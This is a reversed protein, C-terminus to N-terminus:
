TRKQKACFTDLIHSRKQYQPPKREYSLNYCLNKARPGSERKGRGVDETAKNEELPVLKKSAAGAPARRPDGASAVGRM